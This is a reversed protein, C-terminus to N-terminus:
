SHWQGAPASRCIPPSSRPPPVPLNHLRGLLCWARCDALTVCCCRKHVKTGAWSGFFNLGVGFSCPPLPLPRASNIAALRRRQAAPQQQPQEPASCLVQSQAAPLARRQWGSPRKLYCGGWTAQVLTAAGCAPNARCAALCEDWGGAPVKDLDGGFYNM